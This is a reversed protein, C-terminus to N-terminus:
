RWDGCIAQWCSMAAIAATEARLIRPGLSVPIAFDKEELMAFEEKTFGGEPGTLIGAPAGKEARSFVDAIPERDGREKMYYLTRDKPWTALVATITTSPMIKPVSLCECQEAAEVANQLFRDTNIRSTITNKTIIPWIASVGLETAKEAIIDVRARKIPAFVLWVDENKDQPRLQAECIAFCRSREMKEIKAFWEGDKGNFVAVSECPKIRMVNRLYHTQQVNFEVRKNEHLQVDVFLRIKPAKSVISQM